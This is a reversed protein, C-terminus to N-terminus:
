RIVAVFVEVPDFLYPADVEATYIQAYTTTSGEANAVGRYSRNGLACYNADPMATTFNVRYHGTGMDSISSVNGSARIAVTGTGNFNVWARCGYATAVSGFGSNFQFNGNFTARAQETLATRAGGSSSSTFFRLSSAGFASEAYSRVASTVGPGASGGDADYFDVSGLLDGLAVDTNNTNLTITDSSELAPTEIGNTGDLIIAM